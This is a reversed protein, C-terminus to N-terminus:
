SGAYIGQSMIFSEVAEPLLYRAGRGEALMRRIATASVHLQTVRVLSATRGSVLAMRAVTDGIETLERVYPSRDLANLDAGPRVMVVFDVDRILADPSKWAPLDLFADLGLIFSLEAEPHRRALEALTDVTYSTRTSAAEVDSVAFAPNGAVALEVMRLRAWAPALLSDAAKHASHVGAHPLAGGGKLPPVGAPVFLVRDLGVAERVEEAARLHGIHVPNFTGGFVGLRM